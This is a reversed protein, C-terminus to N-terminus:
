VSSKKGGNDTFDIFNLEEGDPGINISPNPFVPQGGMLYTSKSAMSVGNEDVAYQTPPPVNTTVVQAIAPTVASASLATTALLRFFNKRGKHDFRIRRM